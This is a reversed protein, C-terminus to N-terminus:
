YTGHHLFHFSLQQYYPSTWFRCHQLDLNPHNLKSLTFRKCLPSVPHPSPPQAPSRRTTIFINSTINSTKINLTQYTLVPYQTRCTNCTFTHQESNKRGAPTPYSHHLTIRWYITRIKKDDFCFSIPLFSRLIHLAPLHFIFIFSNKM